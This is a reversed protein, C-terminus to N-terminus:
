RTKGAAELIGGRSEIGTELRGAHRSAFLVYAAPHACWAESEGTQAGTADDSSHDKADAAPWGQRGPDPDTIMLNSCIRSLCGGCYIHRRDRTHGDSLLPFGAATTASRSQGVYRARSRREVRQFGRRRFCGRQRSMRFTDSSVDTRAVTVGSSAGLVRDCAGSNLVRLMVLWRGARGFARAIPRCYGSSNRM